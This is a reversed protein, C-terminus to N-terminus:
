GGEVNAEVSAKRKRSAVATRKKHLAKLNRISESNSRFPSTGRIAKREGYEKIDEVVRVVMVCHACMRKSVVRTTFLVVAALM